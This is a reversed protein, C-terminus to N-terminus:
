RQANGPPPIPPFPPLPASSGGGAYGGPPYSAPATYATASGSSRSRLAFATMGVAVLTMIAGIAILLWNASSRGVVRAVDPDAPLYEIAIVGTREAQAYQEKSVSFTKENNPRAGGPGYAVDVSYSKGGRRGRKERGDLVQGEAKVGEKDLRASRGYERVGFGLMALGIVLLAIIILVRKVSAMM